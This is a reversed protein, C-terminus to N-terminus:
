RDAEEDEDETSQTEGDDDDEDADDDTDDDPHSSAWNRVAEDLMDQWANFMTDLKEFREILLRLCALCAVKDQEVGGIKVPERNFDANPRGCLTLDEDNVTVHTDTRIVMKRQSM